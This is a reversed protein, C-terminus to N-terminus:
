ILTRYLRVPFCFRKRSHNFLSFWFRLGNWWQYQKAFGIASFNYTTM